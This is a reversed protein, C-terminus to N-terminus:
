AVLEETSNYNNRIIERAKRYVGGALESRLPNRNHWRALTTYCLPVINDLVYNVRRECVAEGSAIDNMISRICARYANKVETSLANADTGGEDRVRNFRRELSICDFYLIIPAVSKALGNVTHVWNPPLGRRVAGTEGDARTAFRNLMLSYRTIYDTHGAFAPHDHCYSAMGSGMSTSVGISRAIENSRQIDNSFIAPRM